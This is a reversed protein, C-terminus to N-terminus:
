HSSQDPYHKSFTLHSHFNRITLCYHLKSCWNVREHFFKNYCTISNSLMKGVTSSKEFNCEWVRSSSIVKCLTWIRQQWNLLTWLMKVQLLNWRLFGSRQELILLEEDTGTQNRSQLLTTVNKTEMELERAREMVFNLSIKFGESDDMLTATLKWLGTLTSIKVQEWSDCINKIFDLITFEKWTKLKVKCLDMLPNM